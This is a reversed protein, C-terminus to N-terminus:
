PRAFTAPPYRNSPSWMYWGSSLGADDVARVQERIVAPPYPAGLDFAQLWPRIKALRAGPLTQHVSGAPMTGALAAFARRRKAARVLSYHVVDYPHDAPNLLGLFGPSYHSPYVMPAVYDFYLLADELVQGIGMDDDKVTTLGFLDASLVAGTPRLAASLYAFFRHIVERRTMVAADYVPYRVGALDGDSPFRIYDFNLEDVGARAAARGIDVLYAWVEPSAPDVWGLGKRDRWIQGAADRVALDPRVYILHQDQFAAIRVAVYVGRDHLSRVVATLDGLRPDEAGHQQVLPRATTFAVKGTYDKVDIVVANLETAEVLGIAERLRGPAAARWSTLYIARVDQLALDQSEPALDNAAEATRPGLGAALSGPLEPLTHALVSLVVAGTLVAGAVKLLGRGGPRDEWIPGLFCPPPSLPLDPTGRQRRM